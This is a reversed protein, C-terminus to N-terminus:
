IGVWTHPRLLSMNPIPINRGIIQAADSSIHALLPVGVMPTKKKRKEKEEEEVPHLPLGDDLPGPGEKLLRTSGLGVTWSPLSSVARGVWPFNKVSILPLLSVRM